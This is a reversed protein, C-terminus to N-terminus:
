NRKFELAINRIFNEDWYKKVIGDKLWYIRPSTTGIFDFFDQSSIMHYPFNSGTITKFSDVSIGDESFFLVYTEPFGKIRNELAWLEKAALQCHECDLSFICLLKDGEALDVRGADVFSRYKEFKFDSVNKVPTVVFVLVVSAITLVSPLIFNKKEEKILKFLVIALIILVLNKIISEVPSMEVVTGFCGCNEKEGLIFGTYILYSTFFILLILTSPIVIKKLNVRFLFLLGLAFEIGILIRVVYGATLRDAFIGQDVLIIETLGISIIKSYASFIFTLGLILQLFIKFPKM